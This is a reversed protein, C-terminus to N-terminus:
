LIGNDNVIIAFMTAAKVTTEALSGNQWNNIVDDISTLDYNRRRTADKITM